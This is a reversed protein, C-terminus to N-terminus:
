NWTPLRDAEQLLRQTAVLNRRARELHSVGRDALRTLPVEVGITALPPLAALFEVLPLEGEGPIQRENIANHVYQEHTAQAPGDCIQASCILRPDIRAIDAPSGGSQMLHLVDVLISANSQASQRIFKEADGLSALCSLPTFELVLGLGVARCAAALSCFHDFARATDPDFILTVARQAGMSACLELMPRFSDVATDPMLVFGDVNNMVVGTDKLCVMMERTLPCNKAFPHIPLNYGKGTMAIPGIAGYGLEAAISVLEPPTVGMVTSHDLSITRTM